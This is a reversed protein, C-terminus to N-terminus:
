VWRWQWLQMCSLSGNGLVWTRWRFRNFQKRDDLASTQNHKAGRLKALVHNVYRNEGWTGSMKLEMVLKDKNTLILVSYCFDQLWERSRGPSQVTLLCTLFMSSIRSWDCLFDPRMVNVWDTRYFFHTSEKHWIIYANSLSFANPAERNWRWLVLCNWTGM